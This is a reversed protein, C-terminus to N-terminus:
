ETRAHRGEKLKEQLLDYLENRTEGLVSNTLIYGAGDGSYIIVLTPKKIVGKIRDWTIHEGRGDATVSIGTDEVALSITKKKGGLQARCRIWVAVPQIVTFLLLLVAMVARFLDSAGNWRSFILVIASFIFVINVVGMFSSYSYYMSAQWLEFTGTTYTYEFHKDMM